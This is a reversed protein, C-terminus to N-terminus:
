CDDREVEWTGEFRHHADFDFRVHRAEYAKGNEDHLTITEDRTPIITTGTLRTLVRCLIRRIM